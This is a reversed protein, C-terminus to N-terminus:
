THQKKIMIMEQDEHDVIYYTDGQQKIQYLM